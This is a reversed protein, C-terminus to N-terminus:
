SSNPMSPSVTKSVKRWFSSFNQKSLYQAMTDAQIQKEQQRCHCIAYKYKARARRLLDFLPGFSQSTGNAGSIILMVPQM